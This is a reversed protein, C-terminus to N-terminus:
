ISGPFVVTARSSLLCFSGRGLGRLDPAHSSPMGNLFVSIPVPATNITTAMTVRQQGGFDRMRDLSEQALQKDSKSSDNRLLEVTALTIGMRYWGKYDDSKQGCGTTSFCFSLIVCSAVTSKLRNRITRKMASKGQSFSSGM